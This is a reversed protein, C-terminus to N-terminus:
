CVLNFVKKQIPELQNTNARVCIESHNLITRISEFHIGIRFKGWPEIEYLFHM